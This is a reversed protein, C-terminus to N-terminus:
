KQTDKQFQTIINKKIQTSSTRPHYQIQYVKKGQEDFYKEVNHNHPKKGWDQGIVFIDARVQECVSLYDLEHYPLVIDVCSLAELMEIRQELPIIPINPKYLKVVEDSAIGVVVTEGLTACYELLALHGVHLLDFTGVTYVVM